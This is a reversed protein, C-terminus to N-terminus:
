IVVIGKCLGNVGGGYERRVREGMVSLFDM